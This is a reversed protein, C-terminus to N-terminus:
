AFSDPLARAHGGGRRLARPSVWAEPERDVFAHVQDKAEEQGKAGALARAGSSTGRAM